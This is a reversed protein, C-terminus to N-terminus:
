WSCGILREAGPALELALVQDVDDVPRDEEQWLKAHRNAGTDACEHSRQLVHTSLALATTSRTTSANWACRASMCSIWDFRDFSCSAFSRSANPSTGTWAM